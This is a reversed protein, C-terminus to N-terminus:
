QKPGQGADPVTVPVANEKLAAEILMDIENNISSNGVSPDRREPNRPRFVLNLVATVNEDNRFARPIELAFAAERLCNEILPHALTSTEIRAGGVEGRLLDLALRVRGTLDRDAPTRASRNLYCARARPTFALSLADRVVSRELYGRPGTDKPPAAPAPRVVPEVFATIAPGVLLRAEASPPALLPALWRRDVKIPRLPSVGRRARHYTLTLARTRSPDSPTAVVGSVGGGPSIVEAVNIARGTAAGAGAGTAAGATGIEVAYVDGGARLDDLILPVADGIEGTRVFREIGGLSSAAAVTRLTRREDPPVPEDDNARVSIAATLLEVGPLPGLLELTGSGFAPRGIAGDSVLVLLAKPSFASAERRILDGAARLAAPLDTGNAMRAPLMEEELAAIAERTATRAVPFLRKQTRDFFLADFRTSPPLQELLRRVLNREAELGGAGVSRSRDMLFLVREPLAQPPGSPAGVAYALIASEDRGKVAPAASALATARSSDAREVRERPLGFSVLWRTRTSVTDSAIPAAGARLQHPAGGITIERIGIAPQVQVDVRTLPPSLEPAAPFALRASSGSVELLASFDYKITINNSTTRSRCAVRIRFLAEDEFPVETARVGMGRLSELYADRAGQMPLASIPQFRGGDNPSVQVDLLASRPPLALDLVTDRNAKGAGASAATAM